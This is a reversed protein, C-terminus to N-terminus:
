PRGDRPQTDYGTEMVGPVGSLPSHAGSMEVMRFPDSRITGLCAQGLAAMAALQQAYRGEDAGVTYAGLFGAAVLALLGLAVLTEILTLGPYKTFRIQTLRVGRM